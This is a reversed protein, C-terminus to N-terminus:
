SCRRRISGVILSGALARWCARIGAFGVRFLYFCSFERSLFYSTYNPSAELIALMTFLKRRVQSQPERLALGADILAMRARSKMMSEWLEREYASLRIDLKAIAESYSEKESMEPAIGLLYYTIKEAESHM